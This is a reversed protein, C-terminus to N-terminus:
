FNYQYNLSVFRDRGILNGRFLASETYRKDLLNEIAFSLSHQKSIKYNADFDVLTVSDISNNTGILGQEVSLQQEGRYEIRTGVYFKDFQLGAKLTFQTEPLFALDENPTILLEVSSAEDSYHSDRTTFNFTVPLSYNDFHTIM